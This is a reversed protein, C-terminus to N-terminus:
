PLNEMADASQNSADLQNLLDMLHEAQADATPAAEVSTPSQAPPQSNRLRRGSLACASLSFVLLLLCVLRLFTRPTTTM